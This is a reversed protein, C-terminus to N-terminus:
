SCTEENTEHLTTLTKLPTICHRIEPCSHFKRLWCGVLKVYNLMVKYLYIEKPPNTLYENGREKWGLAKHDATHYFHLACWASNLPHCSVMYAWRGEMQRANLGSRPVM